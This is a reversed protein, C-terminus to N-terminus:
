YVTFKNTYLLPPPPRTPYSFQHQNTLSTDQKTLQIFRNRSPPPPRTPYSFQHQNTLSTDQKTLQIFRNRSSDCSFRASDSSIREIVGNVDSNDKIM